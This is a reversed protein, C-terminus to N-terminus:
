LILNEVWLKFQLNELGDCLFMFVLHIQFKVRKIQPKPCKSIICHIKMVKKKKTVSFNNASHLNKNM